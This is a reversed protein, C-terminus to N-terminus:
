PWSEVIRENEKETVETIAMEWFKSISHRSSPPESKLNWHRAYSAHSQTSRSEWVQFNSWQKERQIETPCKELLEEMSSRFFFKWNKCIWEMLILGEDVSTDDPLVPLFSLQTVLQRQHVDGDRTTDDNDMRMRMANSDKIVTEDSFLNARATDRRNIHKTYWALFIKNSPWCSWALFSTFNGQGLYWSTSCCVSYYACQSILHINTV